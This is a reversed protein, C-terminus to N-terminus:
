CILCVNEQAGCCLVPFKCKSRLSAYGLFCRNSSMIKYSTIHLSLIVAGKRGFSLKRPQEAYKTQPVQEYERNTQICTNM